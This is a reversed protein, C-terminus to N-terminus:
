ETKIRPYIIIDFNDFPGGKPSKKVKLYDIHDIVEKLLINKRAPDDIDYYSEILNKVKPILQQQQLQMLNLSKLKDKCLKQAKEHSSIKGKVAASRELFTTDDYIGREYSTFIRELQSKLTLIEKKHISIEKEAVTIQSTLNHSQTSELFLNKDKVWKELGNIIKKELENYYCGINDCSPNNCLMTDYPSRKGAKRYFLNHGCKQCRILGSLPNGIQKQSRIRAPSKDRNMSLREQAAFFLQESIIPEHLGDSILINTSSEHGFRFNPTGDENISYLNKNKKWCIKGIYVPNKLIDAISSFRWHNSLRPKYIGDENLKNAILTTGTLQRSGDPLPIGHVYWNFIQQVAPAENPNIVLKFGKQGIIKKRDYGYPTRNAEFKAEKSAAERGRNMRRKITKYERRSMFLGFEFYEEDIENNPDYIKGPTIILTGSEQLARSVLGQDISDGRALREIEVVLVGDWYGSSIESLLQLMLPRASISEGSKVERYIDTIPIEYRRATEKLIQEHRALTEQDTQHELEIDQRSKRLYMVYKGTKNLM